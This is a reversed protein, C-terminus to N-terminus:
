EYNSKRLVMFLSLFIVQYILMGQASNISANILFCFFLLKGENLEKVNLRMLLYFFFFFSFLLMPMGFNFLIMIFISSASSAIDSFTLFTDSMPGFGILVREKMFMYDLLSIFTNYRPNYGEEGSYAIAEVGRKLKIMQSDLLGEGTPVYELIYNIILIFLAVSIFVLVIQFLASRKKVLYYSLSLIFTLVCILSTAFYLSPLTFLLTKWDRKWVSHLILYSIFPALASPESFFAHPRFLGYGDDALFYVGTFKFFVVSIYIFSISVISLLRFLNFFENMNGGNNLLKSMLYSLFIYFVFLLSYFLSHLLSDSEYSFYYPLYIFSFLLFFILVYVVERYNVVKKYILFFLLIPYLLYQSKFFVEGSSGMDVNVIFVPFLYLIFTFTLHKVKM